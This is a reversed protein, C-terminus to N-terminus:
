RVKRILTVGDRIDLIVQEVRTDTAVEDNFRRIARVGPDDSNLPLGEHLTNDVVLLGHPALLHLTAYYYLSYSTKDADIFIIDFPDESPLAEITDIAPAVRLDIRDAYPSAAFHTAAIQATTPDIECTIITGDPPLARAMALTSSGTYTGIELVRRAQALHVLSALLHGEIHGTLMYHDTLDNRTAKAVAALHPDEPSSHSQVYTQLSDNNRLRSAVRRVRALPAPYMPRGDARTPRWAVRPTVQSVTAHPTTTPTTLPQTAPQTVPQSSRPRVPRWWSRNSRYRPCTHPGCLACDTGGRFHDHAPKPHGCRCTQTTIMPYVDTNITDQPM